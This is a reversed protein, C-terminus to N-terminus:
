KVLLKIGDPVIEYWSLSSQQMYWVINVSNSLVKDSSETKVTILV